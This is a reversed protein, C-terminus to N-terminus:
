QYIFVAVLRDIKEANWNGKSAGFEALADNLEASSIFQDNNKDATKLDDPVPAPTVPQQEGVTIKSEDSKVNQIMGNEEYRFRGTISKDGSSGPKVSVKYVLRIREQAPFSMWTFKAVNGRMELKCGTAAIIAATYGEPLVEELTGGATQLGKDITVDVYFVQNAKAPMRRKVSVNAAAPLPKVVPVDDSIAQPSKDSNHILITLPDSKIRASSGDSVYAYSGTITLSDKAGPPIKLMYPVKIIEDSPTKTWIFKVQNDESLFVPGTKDVATVVVNEPLEQTLKSMETYQGKNIYVEILITEGPKASAPANYIVYPQAPRAPGIVINLTNVPISNSNGNFIYWYFGTIKVVGKADPPATLKYSLKYEKRAPAIGWSFRVENKEFAFSVGEKQVPVAKWGEPLQQMLRASSSRNGTYVTLEVIVSENPEITAPAKCTATPGSANAGGFFLLVLQTLGLLISSM